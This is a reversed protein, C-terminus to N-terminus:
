TTSHLIDINHPCTTNYNTSLTWPHYYTDLIYEPSLIRSLEALNITKFLLWSQLCLWPLSSATVPRSNLNRFAQLIGNGVWIQGYPFCGDMNIMLTFLVKTNSHIILCLHDNTPHPSHASGHPTRIVWQGGYGVVRRWCGSSGCHSRSEWQKVYISSIMTNQAM